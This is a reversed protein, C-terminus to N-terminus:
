APLKENLPNFVVEGDRYLDAMCVEALDVAETIAQKLQNLSYGAGGAPVYLALKNDWHGGYIVPLKKKLYWFLNNLDGQLINIIIYTKPEM